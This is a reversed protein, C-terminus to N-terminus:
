SSQVARVLRMIRMDAPMAMPRQTRACCSQAFREIFVTKGIGEPGHFLIAHPLRARLQQLQQWAGQKGHISLDTMM